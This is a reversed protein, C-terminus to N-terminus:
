QTRKGRRGIAARAPKEVVHYSAVSAVIVLLITILVDGTTSFMEPVGPWIKPAYDFYILLVPIHIMYSSYSIEGLYQVAPHNLPMWRARSLPAGALILLSFPLILAYEVDARWGLAAFGLLGLGFLVAALDQSILPALRRLVMGLMFLPLIRLAGFDYTLHMFRKGDFWVSFYHVAAFIVVFALVLALLPVHRRPMLVAFVIYAFMEAGITWSPENLVLGDTLNWAHMLTASWLVDWSSFLVGTNEGDQGAVLQLAIFIAMTMAHLPYLRAFRKQLYSLPRFSGDRLADGYVHFIVFGSLIFFFDVGRAGNNVFSWFLNPEVDLRFQLHFLVVWIAAFFRFSTLCGLTGPLQPKPNAKM